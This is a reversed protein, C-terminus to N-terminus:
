KRWKVWPFGRMMDKVAREGRRLLNRKKGTEKSVESLIEDKVEDIASLIDVSEKTAYYNTGAGSIKIEARFIEGQRHHETIKALEVSVLVEEKNLIQSIKQLKKEVYESIEPTLTLNTVKINIKM